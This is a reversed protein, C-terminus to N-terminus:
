RVEEPTVFFLVESQQEQFRRIRFLAGLIPLDGLIPIKEIQEQKVHSIMGGIGFTQGPLLSLQTTVRRDILAPLRSGSVEVQNAWDLQSSSAELTLFLKDDGNPEPAFTMVVGYPKYEIQGNGGPLPIQGGIVLRAQKGALTVVSPAAVITAAGRQVLPLLQAAIQAASLPFVGGDTIGFLFTGLRLDPFTGEPALDFSGDPRQVIGRWSMGWRVGLQQLANNDIEIVRVTLRYQIPERVDLHSVVTADRMGKIAGAALSQLREKTVQTKVSGALVLANGVWSVRVAEDGVTERLLDAIREREGPASPAVEVIIRIVDRGRLWLLLTTRGSKKGNLLLERDSITVIDAVEPNSVAVRELQPARLLRGQGEVLQLTSGDASVVSVIAATDGSASGAQPGPIAGAPPLPGMEIPSPPLLAVVIRRAPTQGSRLQAQVFRTTAIVARAGGDGTPTITVRSIGARGVPVVTAAVPGGASITLVIQRGDAQLLQATAPSATTIEVEAAQGAATVTVAAIASEAASVAIPPVAIIVAVLTILWTRM